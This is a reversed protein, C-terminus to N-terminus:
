EIRSLPFAYLRSQAVLEAPFQPAPAQLRYDSRYINVATVNRQISPNERQWLLHALNLSREQDREASVTRLMEYTTVNWTVNWTGFVDNYARPSVPVERGSPLVWRAEWVQVTPPVAPTFTPYLDFPWVPKREGLNDILRLLIRHHPLKTLLAYELNYSFMLSSIGLQCAFLLVGLAHVLVSQNRFKTAGQMAKPPSSCHRPDAVWRYLERGIGAIPMLRMVASIPWLPARNKAIWTYANRRAMHREASAVNLHQSLMEDTIQAHDKRRPDGSFAAVPELADFLDLTKLTAIMRRCRGCGQDYLVLLPARAHHSVFRWVATWDILGVYAAALTGFWIKLVLANSIHFAMGWLALYPRLRRLLVAFIFGIEFAVIGAGLTTLVWAPLSDARVLKVWHPDYWYLQLWRKWMITRLNVSSAWGDTLSSQLKAIGPGLYVLGMLLWIYRLTLLAAPCSVSSETEERDANRNRKALILSDLSFFRGSPGAALLAMFWIVHHQHDMHGLTGALGFGYLSILMALAISSRTRYGVIGFFILVIDAVALLRGLAVNGLLGIPLCRYFSFPMWMDPAVGPLITRTWRLFDLALPMAGFLLFVIRFIALNVGWNRPTTLTEDSRFACSIASPIRIRTAM